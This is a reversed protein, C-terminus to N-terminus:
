KGFFTPLLNRKPGRISPRDSYHRQLSDWLICVQWVDPAEIGEFSNLHLFFSQSLNLYLFLIYFSDHSLSWTRLSHNLVLVWVFGKVWALLSSSSTWLLIFIVVIRVAFVVLTSRVKVFWLGYDVSRLACVLVVNWIILLLQLIHAANLVQSFTLCLQNSITYFPIFICTCEHSSAIVRM